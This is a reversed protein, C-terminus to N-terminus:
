VFIIDGAALKKGNAYDFAPMATKGAPRVTEIFLVGQLCQVFFGAQREIATIQGPTNAAPGDKILTKLIQVYDGGTTQAKTHAPMGGALGRVLNHIQAASM